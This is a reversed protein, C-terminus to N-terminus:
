KKQRKGLSAKRGGVKKTTSDCGYKWSPSFPPGDAMNSSVGCSPAGRYDMGNGGKKLSRKTKTKSKGRKQVSKKKQASKKVNKKKAGGSRCRCSQSNYPAYSGGASTAWPVGYNNKVCEKTLPQEPVKVGQGTLRQKWDSSQNESFSGNYQLDSPKSPTNPVLPQTLYNKGVLSTGGKKNKKGGKCNPNMPYPTPPYAFPGFSPPM